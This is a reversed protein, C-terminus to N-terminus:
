LSASLSVDSHSKAAITYDDDCLDEEDTIDSVIDLLEDSPERDYIKKLIEKAEELGEISPKKIITKSM